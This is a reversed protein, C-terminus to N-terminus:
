GVKKVVFVVILIFGILSGGVILATQWDDPVCSRTSSDCGNPCFEGTDKSFIKCVGDICRTENVTITLTTNDACFTTTTQALANVPIYVASSVVFFMLVLLKKANSEM